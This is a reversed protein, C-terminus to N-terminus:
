HRGPLSVVLDTDIPVGTEAALLDWVAGIGPRSDILTMDLDFGVVLEPVDTTVSPPQIEATSM